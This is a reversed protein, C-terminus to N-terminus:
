GFTGARRSRRHRILALGEFPTKSPRAQELVPPSVSIIRSVPIGKLTASLPLGAQTAGHAGKPM